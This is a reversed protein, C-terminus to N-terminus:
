EVEESVGTEGELAGDVLVNIVEEDTHFAIQALAERLRGNSERLRKNEDLTSQLDVITKETVIYTTSM